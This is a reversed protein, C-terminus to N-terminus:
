KAVGTASKGGMRAPPTGLTLTGANFLYTGGGDNEYLAWLASKPAILWEFSRYTQGNLATENDGVISTTAVSTTPALTGKPASSVVGAGYSVGGACDYNDHTFSVVKAISNYSVTGGDCFGTFTFGYSITKAQASLGMAAAFLAVVFISKIKL